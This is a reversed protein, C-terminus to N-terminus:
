SLVTLPSKQHTHFPYKSVWRCIEVPLADAELFAIQDKFDFMRSNLCDTASPATYRPARSIEMGGIVLASGILTHFAPESDGIAAKLRFSAFIALLAALGFAVDWLGV